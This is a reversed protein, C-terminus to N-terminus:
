FFSLVLAVRYLAFWLLVALVAAVALGTGEPRRVEAMEGVLRFDSEDDHDFHMPKQRRIFKPIDSFDEMPDFRVFRTSAQKM